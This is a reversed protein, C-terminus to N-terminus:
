THGSSLTKVIYIILSDVIKGPVNLSVELEPSKRAKSQSAGPERPDEELCDTKSFVLYFLKFCLFFERSKVDMIKMNTGSGHRLYMDIVGLKCISRLVCKM